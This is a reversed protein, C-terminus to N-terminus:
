PVTKREMSSSFLPLETSKDINCEVSLKRCLEPSQRLNVGGMEMGEPSDPLHHNCTSPFGDEMMASVSGYLNIIGSVEASVEPFLNAESKDDQLIGVFMATHGGSSDGAVIIKEPDINYTEANARMFRIANRADVAQAPFSAIGSHRYEVVAVVYGREALKSLMPLNGYVYQKMWASGQVYVVCPLIPAAVNRSFPRLIQLHLSVGEINAYEIDHEYFIGPEDGSTKLRTVGEVEELFEPFEEYSWKKVEM